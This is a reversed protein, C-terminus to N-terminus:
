YNWDVGSAYKNGDIIIRSNSPDKISYEVLYKKGNIIKNKFEKKSPIVAYEIYYKDVYYKYEISKGGKGSPLYDLIIGYTNGLNNDIDRQQNNLYIYGLISFLLM